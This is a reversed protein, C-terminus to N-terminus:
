ETAPYGTNKCNGTASHEDTNKRYFPGADDGDKGADLM